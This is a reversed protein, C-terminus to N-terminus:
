FYYFIIKRYDIQFRETMFEIVENFFYIGRDSVFIKPVGFRIIVNEFFFIVANKVDNIRVAKVEAWKIFYETVVVIYVMGRFLYFYIEGVYDIGWKEFLVLLLFIYFSLQMYFDNRVFRQCVDCRRVYIYVDKFFILWYYGARFIKQGTM